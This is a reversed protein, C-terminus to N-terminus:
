KKKKKPVEKDLRDPEHAAQQHIARALLAAARPGHPGDPGNPGDRGGAKEDSRLGTRGDEVLRWAIPRDLDAECTRSQMTTDPMKAAWRQGKPGKARKAKQGKPGKAGDGDETGAEATRHQKDALGAHGSPGDERNRPGRPVSYSPTRRLPHGVVLDMKCTSM